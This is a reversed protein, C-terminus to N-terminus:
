QSKGHIAEGELILQPTHNKIRKRRILEYVEIVKKAIASIELHAIDTRGSTPEIHRLAEELGDAFDDPDLACLRCGRTHGIVEPVDGVNSAVVPLNCAMAEKVVNPSGEAISPLILVNSANMYQVVKAHPIGNAVVLEASIGRAHLREVAAKALPFNKVPIEPDNCFLIYYRDPDWGLRIRTEVRPMPRFQEFDVGNPIVFINSVPPAKKKMGESKVIVADVRQSLWRSIRVVFAGKSSYSCDDTVTGLLDDGLFSAVVPTMWQMRSVLCWLGYHGHVIDFRGTVSKLFVQITGTAYRLPVPGPKPHIVEVEIGEAILSDVQTKIFTGKHPRTETPYIGTVMLVRIPKKANQAEFDSKTSSITSVSSM